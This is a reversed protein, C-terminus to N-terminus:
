FGFHIGFQLMKRDDFTSKRFYSSLEQRVFFNWNFIEVNLQVGYAFNNNNLSTKRHRWNINEGKVINNQSIKFGGYINAGIGFGKNINRYAEGNEDTKLKSSHYTFGLPVMLYATRLKSKELNGNHQVLDVLGNQNRSIFFDDEFRITRWSLYLGSILEFPSTRSLQRHYNLGLEIGSSYGLHRNLNQNNGDPLHIMGYGFYMVAENSKKYTHPKKSKQEEKLENLDTNMISYRVQQKILEDLNFDLKEIASNIKDSYNLAIEAKQNDLQEKTLDGNEFKKELAAIENEMELKEAIVIERIQIAYEEVKTTVAPSVKEDVQKDENFDLKIKQAQVSMAFLGFLGLVIIRKIM